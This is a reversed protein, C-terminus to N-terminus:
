NDWKIKMSWCDSWGSYIGDAPHIKGRQSLDSKHWPHCLFTDIYWNQYIWFWLRSFSESKCYICSLVMNHNPRWIYKSHANNVASTLQMIRIVNKLFSSHPHKKCKMFSTSQCIYSKVGKYLLLHFSFIQVRSLPYIPM